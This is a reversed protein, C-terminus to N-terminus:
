KSHIEKLLKELAVSEGYYSTHIETCRQPKDPDNYVVGWARSISGAKGETLSLVVGSCEFRGFKGWLLAQEIEYVCKDYIESKRM